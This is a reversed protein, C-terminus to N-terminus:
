GDAFGPDSRSGTSFSAGKSVSPFYWCPVSVASGKDAAVVVTSSREGWSEVGDRGEDGRLSRAGFDNRLWRIFVSETSEIGLCVMMFANAERGGLKPEGSEIEADSFPITFECFPRSLWGRDALERTRESARM